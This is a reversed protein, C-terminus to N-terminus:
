TWFKHRLAIEFTRIRSIKEQVTEFFQNRIAETNNACNKPFKADSNVNPITEDIVNPM